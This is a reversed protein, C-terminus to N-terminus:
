QFFFTRGHAIFWDRNRAAERESVFVGGVDASRAATSDLM